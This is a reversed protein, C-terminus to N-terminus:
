FEILSLKRQEPQRHNYAEIIARYYNKWLSGGSISQIVTARAHVAEPPLNKMVRTLRNEDLKDGHKTTLWNFATLSASEGARGDFTDWGVKIIKLVRDLNGAKHIKELTGLSQIGKAGQSLAIIGGYSEVMRDIERTPEDGAALRHKFREMPTDAKRIGLKGRLEAEQMRLKAEGGQFRVIKVLVDTEGARKAAAARHQGDVIFYRPDRQGHAPPRESVTILGAANLDYGKELIEKVVRERFERQYSDDIRLVEIPLVDFEAENITVSTETTM